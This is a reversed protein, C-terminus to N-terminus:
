KLIEDLVRPRRMEKTRASRVVVLMQVLGRRLPKERVFPQNDFLFEVARVDANMERRRAVHDQLAAAMEDAVAHVRLVVQELLPSPGFAEHQLAAQPIPPDEEALPNVGPVRHMVATQGM